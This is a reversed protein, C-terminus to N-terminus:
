HINCLTLIKMSNVWISLNLFLKALGEMLDMGIDLNVRGTLSGM